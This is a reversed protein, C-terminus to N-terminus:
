FSSANETISRLRTEPGFITLRMEGEGYPLWRSRASAYLGNKGKWVFGVLRGPFDKSDLWEGAQVQSYIQCGDLDQQDGLIVLGGKYSDFARRAHLASMREMREYNPGVYGFCPKYSYSFLRAQHLVGKFMIPVEKRRMTYLYTGM